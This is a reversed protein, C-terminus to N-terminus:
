LLDREVIEPYGEIWKQLDAREKFGIDMLTTSPMETVHGGAVNFVVEDGVM